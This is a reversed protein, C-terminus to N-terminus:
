CQECKMKKRSFSRIFFLTNLDIIVSPCRWLDFTSHRIFTIESVCFINMSVPDLFTYFAHDLKIWKDSSWNFPPSDAWDTLFNKLDPNPVSGSCIEPWFALHPRFKLILFKFIQNCIRFGQLFVTVLIHREKKDPVSYWESASYLELRTPTTTTTTTIM